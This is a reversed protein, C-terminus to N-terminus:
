QGGMFAKSIWQSHGEASVTGTPLAPRGPVMAARGAQSWARLLFLFKTFFLRM